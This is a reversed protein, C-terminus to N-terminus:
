EFFELEEKLPQLRTDLYEEIWINHILGDFANKVDQSIKESETIIKRLNTIQRKIGTNAWRPNIRNLIFQEHLSQITDWGNERISTLAEMARKCSLFRRKEDLQEMAEICADIDGKCPQGDHLIVGVNILSDLASDIPECQVRNTSYRSWGTAIIGKFNFRQAIDMWAVANEQRKKIDPLDRNHGDAGKYATGAWLTIGNEYLRKINKTSYHHHCNDPHGQYGWPMLDSKESLTKLSNDSWGVMMDAWLIPRVNQNNLKELLPNVHHLYLKEQGHQEIYKKTEPTSGLTRVEDGGLHFHKVDPMVELIDDIMKQILNGAGPALPNLDAPNEPDARLKEYGPVSLPTQMHGLCQVLPIVEINIDQATKLFHKINEVSYATASRFRKDVKWPFMDEWEVLVVNYRAASIIKLLETLREATPPVGKLDLHVGRKQILPQHRSFLEDFVM